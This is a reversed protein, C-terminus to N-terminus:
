QEIYSSIMRVCVTSKFAMWKRRVFKGCGSRACSQYCRTFVSADSRGGLRTFTRSAVLSGIRSSGRTLFRGLRGFWGIALFYLWEQIEISRQRVKHRREFRLFRLLLPNMNKSLIQQYGYCCALRYLHRLRRGMTPLGM